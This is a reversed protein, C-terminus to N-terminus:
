EAGPQFIIRPQFVQQRSLTPQWVLIGEVQKEPKPSVELLKFRPPYKVTVRIKGSQDLIHKLKFVCNGEPDTTLLDTQRTTIQLQSGTTLGDYQVTLRSVSGILKRQYTVDMGNEDRVSKVMGPALLNFSAVNKPNPPVDQHFTALTELDGGIIIHSEDFLLEGDSIEQYLIDKTWIFIDGSYLPNYIVTQGDPDQWILGKLVTGDRLYVTDIVEEARVSGSLLGAFILLLVALRHIKFTSKIKM